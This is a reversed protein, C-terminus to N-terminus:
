AVQNYIDFHKATITRDSKFFDVFFHQSLMNTLCLFAPYRHRVYCHESVQAEGATTM